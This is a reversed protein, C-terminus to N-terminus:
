PMRGEESLCRNVLLACMAFGAVVEVCTDHDVPTVVHRNAGLECSRVSGEGSLVHFM